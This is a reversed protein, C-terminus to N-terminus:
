PTPQSRNLDWQPKAGAAIITADDPEAEGTPYGFRYWVGDIQRKAITYAAVDGAEVPFEYRSTMRERSACVMRGNAAGGVMVIDVANTM